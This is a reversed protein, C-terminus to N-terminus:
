RRKIRAFIYEAERFHTNNSPTQTYLITNKVIFIDNRDLRIIKKESICNQLFNFTFLILFLM